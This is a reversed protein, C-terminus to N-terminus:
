YRGRAWRRRVEEGIGAEMEEVTRARGAPGLCGFVDEERTAAFVARGPVATLMVGGAREEVALRTGAGWGMRERVAKPLTVRGETSVRTTLGSGAM